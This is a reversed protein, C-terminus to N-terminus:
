IMIFSSATTQHIGLRFRCQLGETMCQNFTCLFITAFKTKANKYSINNSCPHPSYFLSFSSFYSVKRITLHMEAHDVILIVSSTKCFCKQMTEYFTSGPQTDWIYWSIWETRVYRAFLVWFFLSKWYSILERSSFYSSGDIQLDFNFLSHLFWDVSVTMYQVFMNYNLEM